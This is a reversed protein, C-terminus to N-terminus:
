TCMFYNIIFVGFVTFYMIIGAKVVIDASYVVDMGRQEVQCRYIGPEDVWMVPTNDLFKHKMAGHKSWQYTTGLSHNPVVCFIPVVSGKSIVTATTQHIVRFSGIM